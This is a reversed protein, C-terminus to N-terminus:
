CISSDFSNTAISSYRDAPSRWEVRSWVTYPPTCLGSFRARLHRIIWTRKVRVHESKTDSIHTAAHWWTVAGGPAGADARVWSGRARERDSVETRSAAFLKENASQFLTLAACGSVLTKMEGSLADNARPMVIFPAAVTVYSWIRPASCNPFLESASM